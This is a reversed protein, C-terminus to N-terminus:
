RQRHARGADEKSKEGAVCCLRRSGVPVALLIHTSLSRNVGLPVTSCNTGLGVSTSPWLSFEMVWLSAAWGLVRAPVSVM